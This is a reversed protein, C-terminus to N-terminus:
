RTLEAIRERAAYLGKYRAVAEPMESVAAHLQARQASSLGDLRYSYVRILFVSEDRLPAIVQREVRLFAADTTSWDGLTPSDPHRDLEDNPTVTWVYRVRPGGFLTEALARRGREGFRDHAPVAAHMEVFSRGIVAAPRWGSPFCVHLYIARARQASEDPPRAMVVIDEQVREAIGDLTPDADAIALGPHEVRLTDVMFSRARELADESGDLVLRRPGASADALLGTKRRLYDDRQDDLQFHLGDVDGNRGADARLPEFPGPMPHLLVGDDGRRLDIPFYRAPREAM